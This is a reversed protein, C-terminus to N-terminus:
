LHVHRDWVDAAELGQWAAAVLEHNALRPPLAARCPNWLGQEPWYRWAAAGFAAAGAGLFGLLLRRRPGIRTGKGAPELPGIRSIARSCRTRSTRSKSCRRRWM